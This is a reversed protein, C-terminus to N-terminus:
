TANGAYLAEVLISSAWLTCFSWFPGAIKVVGQIQGVRMNAMKM